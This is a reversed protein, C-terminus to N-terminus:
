GDEDLEGGLTGRLDDALQFAVVVLDPDAHAQSLFAVVDRQTIESVARKFRDSMSDQFSSWLTQIGQQKDVDSLLAKEFSTFPEVLVCCVYNGDVYSRVQSPERGYYSSHLAAMADSIAAAITKQARQGGNHVAYQHAAM